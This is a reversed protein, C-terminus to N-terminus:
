TVEKGIAGQRYASLSIGFYKKFATYFYNSKEIGTIELINNIDMNSNDLYFKVKEMRTDMIYESVSKKTVEKFLKGVYAPSRDLMEAIENLCLNKNNYNEQIIKIAKEIVTSAPKKTNVKQLEAIVEEFLVGFARNVEAITEYSGLNTFFSSFIRSVNLENNEIAMNLSNYVSYAIYMINTYISSYSYDMFLSIIELYAAKTEELDGMRLSNLLRKEKAAPFTYYGMNVKKLIEPLLICSYGYVFRYMSINFTYNWSEYLQKSNTLNGVAATLSIKLYNESAEQIQRIQPIIIEYIEESSMTDNEISILVAFHDDGMDVVENTFYEGRIEGTINAIAFKFTDRDKENYKQTFQNYHDIRIIFMFLRKEFDLEIRQERLMNADVDIDMRIIKKLYENRILYSNDRNLKKLKETSSLVESFAENLYEFENNTDKKNDTIISSRIKQTLNKIPTYFKRSAFFSALIGAILILFCFLLVVNKLYSISSFVKEYPLRAIFYWGLTESYSYTIIYKKNELDESFIGSTKDERIIRNIYQQESINKLFMVNASDCIVTGHCDTVIFDTNGTKSMNNMASIMNRLWDAKINVIVASELGNNGLEKNYIVYTYVEEQEKGTPGKGSYHLSLRPIPKLFPIKERASANILKVMDVDYFDKSSSAEGTLSSLFTDTKRSYIYISSIYSNPITISNLYNYTYAVNIPDYVKDSIFANVYSNMFVSESINEALQDIYVSSYSVQSLLKMHNDKIINMGSNSFINYLSLSLIIVLIM